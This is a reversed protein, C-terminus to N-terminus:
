SDPFEFLMSVFRQHRGYRTTIPADVYILLFFPRITFDDLVDKRRLDSTVLRDRWNRTAYDLLEDATDFVLSTIEKAIPSPNAVSYHRVPLPTLPSNVDMSLFSDRHGVGLGLNPIIGSDKDSDEKWSETDETDKM